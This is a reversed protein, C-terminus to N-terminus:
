NIFVSRCVQRINACIIDWDVKIMVWYGNSKILTEECVGKRALMIEQYKKDNTFDRIIM